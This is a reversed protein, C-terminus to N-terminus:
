ISSIIRVNYFFMYVINVAVIVRGTSPTGPAKDYTVASILQMVGCIAMGTMLIERRGIRTIFLSSALIGVVSLASLICSNQFPKGINAMEFFYTGYGIMFM